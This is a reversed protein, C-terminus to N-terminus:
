LKLMLLCSFIVLDHLREKIKAEGEYDCENCNIKSKIKNIKVDWKTEDILHEKLHELEIGVLEGLEIEIGEVKNKNPIDKIIAQIFTHEHM